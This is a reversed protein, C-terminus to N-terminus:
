CRHPDELTPVVNTWSTYPETTALDYITNLRALPDQDYDVRLDLPARKPHVIKVAASLTGRSDSGAAMGAALTDLLRRGFDANEDVSGRFAADMEGLVTESTLWNGAIVYGRGEIQGKHDTNASGTWAAVGGSCDLVSLQRYDRGSDAATLRDVTDRASAGKGLHVLADDGWLPSVSFGQTAVAGAKASARLVWAGVALNGTAAACGIAGSKEDRALISFTM